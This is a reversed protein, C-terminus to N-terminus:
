IHVSLLKSSANFEKHSGRAFWKLGQVSMNIIGNRKIHIIAIAVCSQEPTQLWWCSSQKELLKTRGVVLFGDLVLTHSSSPTSTKETIKRLWASFLYIHQYRLSSAGHLKYSTLTSVFTVSLSFGCIICIIYDQRGMIFLRAQLIWMLTVSEHRTRKLRSVFYMTNVLGIYYNNNLSGKTGNNETGYIHTYHSNYVRPPYCSVIFICSLTHVHSAKKM